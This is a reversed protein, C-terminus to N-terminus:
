MAEGTSGLRDGFYATNAFVSGHRSTRHSGNDIEM